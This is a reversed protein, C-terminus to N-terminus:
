SDMGNIGHKPGSKLAPPDSSPSNDSGLYPGCAMTGGPGVWRGRRSDDIVGHKPFNKKAVSGLGEHKLRLEQRNSRSKNERSSTM